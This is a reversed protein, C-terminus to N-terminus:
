RRSFIAAAGWGFLLALAVAVLGYLM